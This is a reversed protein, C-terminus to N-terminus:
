NESKSEKEDRPKIPLPAPAPLRANECGYVFGALLLLGGTLLAFWDPSYVFRYLNTGAAFARQLRYSFYGSVGSMVLSGCLLTLASFCVMDPNRKDGYRGLALNELLTAVFRCIPALILCALCLQVLGAYLATKIAEATVREAPVTLRVGSGLSVHYVSNGATGTEAHLYPAITMDELAAKMPAIILMCIVSVAAVGILVFFAIKLLFSLPRAIKGTARYVMRGNPKPKENKKDKAFM